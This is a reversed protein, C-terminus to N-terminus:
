SMQWKQTPSSRTAQAPLKLTGYEAELSFHFSFCKRVDKAVLSEHDNSEQPSFHVEWAKSGKQLNGKEPTEEHQVIVIDLEPKKGSVRVSDISSRARELLATGADIIRQAHPIATDPDGVLAHQIDIVFLATRSM